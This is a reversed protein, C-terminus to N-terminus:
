PPECFIGVRRSLAHSAHHVQRHRSHTQNVDSLEIRRVTMISSRPDGQWEPQVM